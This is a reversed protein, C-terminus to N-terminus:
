NLLKHKIKKALNLGRAILSFHRTFHLFRHFSNAYPYDEITLLILQKFGIYDGNFCRALSFSMNNKVQANRVVDENVGLRIALEYAERYFSEIKAKYLPNSSVGGSHKRYCGYVSKDLHIPGNIAMDIYVYFDVAQFGKPYAPRLNRRYMVSSHVFYTGLTVLEEVNAVEPLGPASGIIEDSGIVNVAHTSMSYLPHSDLLNAQEQLKGPLFMDDGDCHCVYEGIALSHANFYNAGAGVNFDRSIPRIFDYKNAYEQIIEATKDTSCDDSIIVEFDFDTKQNVISDLCDGIFAEQNYTVVCVSVKVKSVLSM